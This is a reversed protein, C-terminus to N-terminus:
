SVIAGQAVSPLAELFYSQFYGTICLRSSLMDAAQGHHPEQSSGLFILFIQSICTNSNTKSDLSNMFHRSTFWFEVVWLDGLRQINKLNWSRVEWAIFASSHLYLDVEKEEKVYHEMHVPTLTDWWTTRLLTTNQFCLALVYATVLVKYVLM